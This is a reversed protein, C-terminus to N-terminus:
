PKSFLSTWDPQDRWRKLTYDNEVLDRPFGNQISQGMHYFASLKDGQLTYVVAAYYHMTGDAPDLRLAHDLDIKAASFDGLHAHAYARLFYARAYRPRQEVLQAALEIVRDFAANTQEGGPETVYLTAALDASVDLDDPSLEIAKRYLTAAFDFDGLRYYIDGLNHYADFTPEIDISRQFVAKAQEYDNSRLYAAGLNSWAYADFPQVDVVRQFLEVALDLKGEFFAYIGAYKLAFPDNASIALASEFWREAEPNDGSMYYLWGLGVRAEVNEPQRDLVSQFAALGPEIEGTLRYLWGLALDIEVLSDDLDRAQGCHSKAEAILAAQQTMHYREVATRCLGAWAQAYAPDKDLAQQFWRKAAALSAESKPVQLQSQGKMYERWAPYNSTPLEELSQRQGESIALKLSDVVDVAIRNHLEIVDTGAALSAEYENAWLHFGDDTSILQVTLKVTDAGFRATGEVFADVNMKEAIQTHDLALNKLAFSLTRSPVKLTSIRSLKYILEETLGDAFHENEASESLNVFPIVGISSISSTNHTFHWWFPRYLLLTAVVASFIMLAAVPKWYGPESAPAPTDGPFVGVNAAEQTLAFTRMAFGGAEDLHETETFMDDTFDAPLSRRVQGSVVIGGGESQHMIREAIGIEHGYLEGESITVNGMSIGIRVPPLGVVQAMPSIRLACRLADAPGRFLSVSKDAQHSVVAGHCTSASAEVIEVLQRVMQIARHEDEDLQEDYGVIDTTMISALRHKEHVEYADLDLEFDATKQLGRDTLDFVWSLILALPFGLAVVIFVSKLVWTPANFIEGLFLEAVQLVLWAFAVYGVAVGYVRRRRLERFFNNLHRM